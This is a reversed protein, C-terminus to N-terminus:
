PVPYEPSQLFGTSPPSNSGLNKGIQLGVTRLAIYFWCLFEFVRYTKYIRSKGVVQRVSLGLELVFLQLPLSIYLVCCYNSAHMNHLLDLM